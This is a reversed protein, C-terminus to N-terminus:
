EDEDDDYDRRKRRRAVNSRRPRTSGAILLYGANYTMVCLPMTFLLGIGCAFAGVMGILGILFLVGFIGLAHGRSLEWNLQIAEIPGVNRDIILPVNFSLARLWVYIVGIYNVVGVAIAVLMLVDNKGGGLAVAVFAGITPLFCALTLLGGLLNNALLPGYWQFGSFFDGFSWDKGKLQALAVVVFGAVLPAQIFLLVVPGVFPILELGIMLAYSILGYGIMPGLVASYHAKGYEFWEGFEISYNSSIGRQRRRPRDDDEDDEDAVRRRRPRREEEEDEEQEDEDEVEYEDEPPPPRRKKRPGEDEDDVVEYDEDAAPAKRSKSPTEARVRERSDPDPPRPPKTSDAAMFTTSCSPCKVKKGLLEDPVRLQRDCEPCKTIVPM